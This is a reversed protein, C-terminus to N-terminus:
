IIVATILKVNNDNYGLPISISNFKNGTGNTTVGSIALEHSM